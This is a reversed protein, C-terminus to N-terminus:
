RPAGPSPTAGKTAPTGPAAAPPQVAPPFLDAPMPKVDIKATKREETIIREQLDSAYQALVAVRNQEFDFPQGAKRDAVKILHFGYETEIPDSVVGTKQAFAAAAFQELFPGKRTFYGLDGGNPSEKNAPDESYKNAADQFTIAGSDIQKKIGLLKQRTAEKAAASADAPVALFIHAAKVQVRTFVDKNADVYKKLEADTAIGDVYKKWGIEPLIQARLDAETSGAEALALKLDPGGQQKMQAAIQAIRDTVDKEAVPVRKKVLFQSILKHNAIYEVGQRYMEKEDGPQVPYRSLFNLLEGRTIPENNVTAVVQNLIAPRPPPTPAGTATGAKPAAGGPATVQALASQASALALALIALLGNGLRQRM